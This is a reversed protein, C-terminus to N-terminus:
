MEQVGLGGETGKSNMGCVLVMPYPTCDAGQSIQLKLFHSIKICRSQNIEKTSDSLRASDCRIQSDTSLAAVDLTALMCPNGMIDSLKEPGKLERLM